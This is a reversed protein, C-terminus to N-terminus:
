ILAKADRIWLEGLPYDEEGAVDGVILSLLKEPLGFLHAQGLRERQRFEACGDALRQSLSAAPALGFTGACRTPCRIEAKPIRTDINVGGIGAGSEVAAARARLAQLETGSFDRQRWLSHLSLIERNQRL